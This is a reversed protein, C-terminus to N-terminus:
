GGHCDGALGKKMGDKNQFALDREGVVVKSIRGKARFKQLSITVTDARKDALVENCANCGASDAHSIVLM